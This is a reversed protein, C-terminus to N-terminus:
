ILILCGLVIRWVQEPVCWLNPGQNGHSPTQQSWVRRVAETGWGHGGRDSSSSAPAADAGPLGEADASSGFVWVSRLDHLLRGFRPRPGHLLDRTVDGHLGLDGREPDAVTAPGHSSPPSSFQPLPLTRLPNPWFQTLSDFTLNEGKTPPNKRKIPNWSIRLRWCLHVFFDGCKRKRKKHSFFRRFSLEWIKKKDVLLNKFIFYSTKDNRLVFKESLISCSYAWKNM